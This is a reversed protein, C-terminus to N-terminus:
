HLDRLDKAKEPAKEEGLLETKQNAQWQAIQRETTAKSIGYAERIKGALQERKGAIVELEEATLKGWRTKATGKYQKWNDEIRDWDM